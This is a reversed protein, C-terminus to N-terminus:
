EFYEIKVVIKRVTGPEKAVQCPEHIDGPFFLFFHKPDSDMVSQQAEAGDRLRFNQVDKKANYENKAVLATTDRVMGYRESGTVDWQLDIHQRHQEYQCRERPRLELDQVHAVAHSWTMVNKGAPMTAAEGEVAALWAFISDYMAAHRTYQDYFTAVDMQEYGAAGFGQRWAGREYWAQAASTATRRTSVCATLAACAALVALAFLTKKQRHLM